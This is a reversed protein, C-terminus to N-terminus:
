RGEHLNSQVSSQPVNRQFVIFIMCDNRIIVCYNSRAEFVSKFFGAKDFGVPDLDDGLGRVSNRCNALDLLM